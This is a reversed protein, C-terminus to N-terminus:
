KVYVNSAGFVKGNRGMQRVELTDGKKLKIYNIRVTNVNLWETDVQKGNLFVKSNITFNNGLIHVYNEVDETGNIEVNRFGYKIAQPEYKIGLEENVYQKGYLLDYQLNEFDNEYSNNVESNRNASHLSNFVSGRMGVSDLIKTTLEYAQIDEDQKQLGMNDFIFYPTIFIDNTILDEPSLNLGPLHDGFVAVITPEDRNQIEELFEGLFKDMEYLQNVYYEWQNKLSEDMDNLVEVHKEKLIDNGPYGGHGQVSVAYVFDSNETSDLVDKIEKKFISDKAWGTENVHYNSMNEISIFTDFGMNEYVKYRDYFTGEHNHMSHASYGQEKLIYAITPVIEKKMITNYPFEGSSFYDINMGTIVEFETNATGGGIAPVSIYGSSYKKSLERFVPIPDESFELEKVWLPDMFTEMQLIIINPNGYEANFAEISDNNKYNINEGLNYKEVLSRINNDTYNEPKSMGSRLTTNMLSYPFGYARYSYFLDAFDKAVIGKNQAYSTLSQFVLVFCIVFPISLKYKVKDVGKEKKWIFVVLAIVFILAIIILAISTWSLYQNIITLGQKIMSFDTGTLPSGRFKDLFNSTVSGILWVLNTIIIGSYRKKIFFIWSSTLLIIISNYMFTKKKLILFDIGQNFSGRCIMEIILNIIIGNFIWITLPSLIIKKLKDKM